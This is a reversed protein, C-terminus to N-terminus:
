EAATVITVAVRSEGAYSPVISFSKPVGGSLGIRGPAHHRECRGDTPCGATVGTDM